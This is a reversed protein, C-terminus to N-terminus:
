DPPQLNSDKMAWWFFWPTATFVTAGKRIPFTKADIKYQMFASYM